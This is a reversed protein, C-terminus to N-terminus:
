AGGFEIGDLVDPLVEALCIERIANEGTVVLDNLGSALGPVTEDVFWPFDHGDSHSFPRVQTLM